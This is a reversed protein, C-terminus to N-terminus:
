QHSRGAPSASADEEHKNTDTLNQIAITLDALNQNLQQLYQDAPMNTAVAGRYTLWSERAVNYSRVLGNFAEKSSDPLRGAQYDTRAQDITNKAILLADYGISDATNVAGPHVTYQGACATTTGAVILLLLLLAKVGPIRNGLATTINGATTHLFRYLWLYGSTGAPAPEPMASVAASFIWYIGVAVWFQHQLLFDIM